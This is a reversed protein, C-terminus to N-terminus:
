APCILVFECSACLRPEPHAPFAAANIGAIAARVRQRLIAEKQPKLTVPRMGDGALQHEVVTDALESAMLQRQALVTLYFRVDPDAANKRRELQHRIARQEPAHMALVGGPVAGTLESTAATDIRDLEVSISTEDVVVAITQAFTTRTPKDQAGVRLHQFAAAVAARGRRQYLEDFPDVDADDPHRVVDAKWVDDFRTLIDETDHAAAVADQLTTTVAHRLRRYSGRHGSFRYGYRYAYQRPCRDYTDIAAAPIADASAFAPDSEAPLVFADGDDSDAVPADTTTISEPVITADQLIPALFPSAASRRATSYREARSLILTDRARTLAVYFLCAEELLHAAKPDDAVGVVLGPPAPSQDWQAQSPFKSQAITPLYVVPWELGKAGHVTLVRVTGEATAAPEPPDTRRPLSRMDRLYAVFDRWRRQASSEPLATGSSLPEREEDYRGALALLEALHTATAPDGVLADRAIDTQAFLYSTMAHAMSTQHRLASLIEHLRAISVRQPPTYREDSSAAALATWISMGPARAAALLTTVAARDLPHVAVHAARLLGGLEGALLHAVGLLDKITPDDFLDTPMAAPIGATALATTVTRALSRTRCLVAHDGYRAGAAHRAVIDAAISAVEAAGDPAVRLHIQDPTASRTPQLLVSDASLVSTAFRNAAAVIAPRSRYNHDLAVVHAGPYDTAFNAINAPSAGRFRYIAQNSDGVAWINGAPGALHRLLVGNARNIDQFEDVLVAAYRQHIEAMVTPQQELLRVALRILDGYDVDRRRELETQYVAYVAAVEQAREASEVDDPTAAAAHQAAALEAYREPEALEDKAQSIASLLTSFYRTPNALATYHNLPLRDGIDRLLFFAGIEDILRFNPRLGVLHGYARLLDAGFRHFTTVNPQHEPAIGRQSLATAIRERMEQAAKRSFTLALIRAPDTGQDILWGVRAVLTSTKGTGPGAVILAPTATCVAAAQAADLTATVPTLVPVDVISAASTDSDPLDEGVYLLRTLQAVIVANSVGCAAALAALTQPAVGHEPEGVFAARVLPLPALLEAAFANAQRERRSQPSYAEDPRLIAAPDATDLAHAIDDSACDGLGSETRHLRWHGLEHALTFRAVAPTLATSLWILDDDPDLYGLTSPHDHPAFLAVAVGLMEAIDTVPVWLAAKPTDTRAQWQQWLAHAASRAQAIEDM